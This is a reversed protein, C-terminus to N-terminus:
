ISGFLRRRWAAAHHRLVARPSNLITTLDANERVARACETEVASTRAIAESLSCRLATAEDHLAVTEGRLVVTQDRLVITEDRLTAAEGRLTAAEARLMAAGARLVATERRLLAAEDRLTATEDRLAATEDRLTAAKDRLSANEDLVARHEAAFRNAASLHDFNEPIMGEGLRRLWEAMFLGTARLDEAHDVDHLATAVERHLAEVQDLYASLKAAERIHASVATADTADYRAIEAAIAEATVARTLVSIGFNRVRWAEMTATTALGALGRGDVVVVACGVAMAEIAMRATAFVIDYNRLQEHLDDVEQGFASGIEDLVLGSVRAADRVAAVHASNKALLLARAPRAPLPARPTFLDTNVANMLLVIDDSPLGTEAVLRARCAEDVACLRKVRPLRPAGDFWFAASHCVFLGPSARFHAMASALVHNHHGHIVDPVWPVDEPRDTVAVGRSRLVDASPGLLPAFVAIEHGRRQLGAALDITVIEAGSRGRMACNTLLVRM